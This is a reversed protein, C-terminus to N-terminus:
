ILARMGAEQLKQHVSKEENFQEYLLCMCRACNGSSIPTMILDTVEIIEPIKNGELEMHLNGISM